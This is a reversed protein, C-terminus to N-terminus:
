GGTNIIEKVKRVYDSYLFTHGAMLTLNRKKALEVLECAQQSNIALPKEVLASINHDLARKVVEYHTSAPTAVIIGDPHSQGVLTDFSTFLPVDPYLIRMKDLASRSLDCIGVLEVDPMSLLNRVLNPGWYGVGIVAIKLM